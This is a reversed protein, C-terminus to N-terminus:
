LATWVRTVSDLSQVHRVAALVHQLHVFNCSMTKNKHIKVIHSSIDKGEMTNM